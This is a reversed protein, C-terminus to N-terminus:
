SAIIYAILVDMGRTQLDQAVEESFSLVKSKSTAQIREPVHANMDFIKQVPHVPHVSDSALLSVKEHRM